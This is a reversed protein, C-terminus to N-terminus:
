EDRMVEYNKLISRVKEALEDCEKNQDTVTDREEPIIPDRYLVYRNRIDVLDKHDADSRENLREIDKVIGELKSVIDAIDDHQAAVQLEVEDLDKDISEDIQSIKDYKTNLGEIGLRTDVEHNNLRVNLYIVVAMTVVTALALVITTM